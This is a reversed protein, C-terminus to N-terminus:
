IPEGKMKRGRRLWAPAQGFNVWMAEWTKDPMEPPREVPQAWFEEMNIDLKQAAGRTARARLLSGIVSLSITVLWRPSPYNRSIEALTGCVPVHRPQLSRDLILARGFLVNREDSPHNSTRAIANWQQLAVEDMRSCIGAAREPAMAFQEVFANAAALALTELPYFGKGAPAKLHAPIDPLQFRRRRSMYARVSLGALACHQERSLIM